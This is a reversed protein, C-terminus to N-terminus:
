KRGRQLRKANFQSRDSGLSIMIFDQELTTHVDIHDFYSGGAWMLIGMDPFFGYLINNTRWLRGKQDYYECALILFTEKDIYYIRKSYVYTSDLQEMEVVYMPRREFTLNRWLFRAKSDFYEEGTLTYSPVLFEREELVRVKYPYANPTMKQNLNNLDDYTYDLGIAQDQRDSSSMKRIRRTLPTYVLLNDAIDPQLRKLWVYAQGYQDRPEVAEYYIVEQEGQKQARGDYWAGKPERMLRNYLRMVYFDGKSYRDKKFNNDVGISNTMSVYDEGQTYTYTEIYNYLVQWGKQTGSPKPFPVGSKNTDDYILYGQEDLTASGENKIGAEAVSLHQWYQRAPVVEFETFNAGFNKGQAGPENFREYFMPIMLKDFPYKTKDELTYKGPTIEPAINGVLDPSKFGVMEAWRQSGKEVDFSLSEVVEKGWLDRNCNLYPRPDDVMKKCAELQNWEAYNEIIEKAMLPQSAFLLAAGTICFIFTRKRM